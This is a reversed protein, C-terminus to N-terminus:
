KSMVEVARSNLEEWEDPSISNVIARLWTWKLLDVPHIIMNKHHDILEIAELQDM